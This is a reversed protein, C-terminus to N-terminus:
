PPMVAPEDGAAAGGAAGLGGPGADTWVIEEIGAAADAAATWIAQVTTQNTLNLRAARFASEGARGMELIADHTAQDVAEFGVATSRWREGKWIKWVTTGSVNGHRAGVEELYPGRKLTWGPYATRARSIARALEWTVESIPRRPQLARPLPVSRDVGPYSDGRLIGLVTRRHM